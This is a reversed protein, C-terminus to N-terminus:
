REIMKDDHIGGVSAVAKNPGVHDNRGSKKNKTYEPGDDIQPKLLLIQSESVVAEINVGDTLIREILPAPDSFKYCNIQDFKVTVRMMNRENLLNYRFLTMEAVPGNYTSLRNTDNKNQKQLVKLGMTRNTEAKM